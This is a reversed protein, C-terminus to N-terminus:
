TTGLIDVDDKIGEAISIVHDVSTEIVGIFHVGFFALDDTNQVAYPSAVIPHKFLLTSSQPMKRVSRRPIARM